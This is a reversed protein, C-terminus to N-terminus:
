LWGDEAKEGRAGRDEESATDSVEDVQIRSQAEDSSGDDGLLKCDADRIGHEQDGEESKSREVASTGVSCHQRAEKDEEDDQGHTQVESRHTPGPARARRTAQRALERGMRCIPMETATSRSQTVVM